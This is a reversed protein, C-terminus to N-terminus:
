NIKGGMGKSNVYLEIAVIIKSNVLNLWMELNKKKKNFDTYNRFKHIFIIVTYQM